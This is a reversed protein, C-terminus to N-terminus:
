VGMLASVSAGTGSLTTVNARVFKWPANAVFGDSSATTSLTLSITGLTLWNSGDNSVEITIVGTGGGASTTGSAQFTTIPADKFISIGAGTTTKADILNYTKGSKVWVNASM